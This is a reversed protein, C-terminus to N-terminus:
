RRGGPGTTNRGGRHADPRGVRRTGGGALDRGALDGDAVAGTRADHHTGLYSRRGRRSLLRDGGDYLTAGAWRLAPDVLGS